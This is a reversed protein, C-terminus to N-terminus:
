NKDEFFIKKSRLLLFCVQLEFFKRHNWLILNALHKNLNTKKELFSSLLKKWALLKRQWVASSLFVLNQVESLFVQIFFFNELRSVCIWLLIENTKQTWTHSLKPSFFLPFSSVSNADSLHPKLNSLFLTIEPLSFEGKLQDFLTGLQIFFVYEKSRHQM